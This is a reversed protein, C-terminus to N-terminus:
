RHYQPSPGRLTKWIEDCAEVAEPSLGGGQIADLNEALQRRSSAGLIVCDAATHHALWALALSTVTRGEADAVASLRSAADFNASHWYRDRYVPMRDFRTGPQPETMKHKGTLLGGALPNFVATKVSFKKCLPLLEAEIGRAILNYLPQVFRVPHWGNTEALWLM